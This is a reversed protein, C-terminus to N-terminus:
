NLQFGNLNFEAQLALVIEKTESASMQSHLALKSALIKKELRPKALKLVSFIFVILFLCGFISTFCAILAVRLFSNIAETQDRELSSPELPLIDSRSDSWFLNLSALNSNLRQYESSQFHKKLSFVYFFTMLSSVFLCALYVAAMLHIM